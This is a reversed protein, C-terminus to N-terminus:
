LVIRRGVRQGGSGCSAGIERKEEAVAMRRDGNGYLGLLDIIGSAGVATPKGSFQASNVQWGDPLRVRLLTGLLSNRALLPVQEVM